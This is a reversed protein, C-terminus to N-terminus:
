INGKKGNRKELEWLKAHKMFVYYMTSAVIILGPIGDLFGLKFIYDRFFRYVPRLIMNILHFRHNSNYLDEAYAQSYRDITKIQQSSDLYPTHLYHNKLRGIKGDVFVKAHIGGKWFGKDKKYLRIEYDPYWGGYKIEKGLYINKRNVVYGAYDTKTSIISAIEKKIEETLWEDADIFMVWDNKCMDQAYQYKERLNKTDFQYLCDTYNKVIEQTGDTSHSDVVVIEDAWDKISKLAREVTIANNFTIMYVSIPIRM